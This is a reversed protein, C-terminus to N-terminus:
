DIYGLSKLRKLTRPDLPVASADTSFMRAVGDWLDMDLLMAEFLDPKTASVDHLEDPDALLDFLMVASEDEFEVRVIKHGDRVLAFIEFGEPRLPYVEVYAPVPELRRGELLPRLSRGQVEGPCELGCLDLITPAVDVHRTYDDVRVGKKVQGPSSIIMPVRLTEDFASGGHNWAQHEYFEEGHDSTLVVITEDLKGTEALWDLIRVIQTEVYLIDAAYLTKMTEIRQPPVTDGPEGLPFGGGMQRPHDAVRISPPPSDLLFEPPGYPGHPGMYHVYAFFPADDLGRLWGLAQDTTRRADWNVNEPRTIEPYADKETFDFVPLGVRDAVRHVVTFDFVWPLWVAWFHDFGRGYGKRPLIYFNETFAGTHFRAQEFAETLFPSRGSVSLAKALSGHSSPFQGTLLSATSPVTWTSQAIQNSFIAGGDALRDAAPSAHWSAGYCDLFDRRLTDTVIL